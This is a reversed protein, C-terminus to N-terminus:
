KYTGSMEANIPNRDVAYVKGEYVEVRLNKEAFWPRTKYINNFFRWKEKEADFSLKMAARVGWFGGHALEAKLWINSHIKIFQDIEKKTLFDWSKDVSKKDKM